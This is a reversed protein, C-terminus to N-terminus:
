QPTGKAISFGVKSPLTRTSGLQVLFLPARAGAKARRLSTRVTTTRTAKEKVKEKQPLPMLTTRAKPVSGVAREKARPRAGRTRVRAKARTRLSESGKEPTREARKAGPIHSHGRLGTREKEGRSSGKRETEKEVKRM